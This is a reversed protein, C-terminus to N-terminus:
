NDEEESQEYLDDFLLQAVTQETPTGYRFRRLLIRGIKLAKEPDDLHINNHLRGLRISIQEKKGLYCNERDDRVGVVNVNRFILVPGDDSTQKDVFIGTGYCTLQRGDIEDRWTILALLGQNEESLDSPSKRM